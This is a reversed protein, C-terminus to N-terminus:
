NACQEEIGGDSYNTIFIACQEEIGGDSCNTLM